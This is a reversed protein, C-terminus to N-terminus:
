EFTVTVSNASFEGSYLKYEGVKHDFHEIILGKMMVLSYAITIVM